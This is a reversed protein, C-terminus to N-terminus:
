ELFWRRSSGLRYICTRGVPLRVNNAPTAREMTSEESRPDFEDLVVLVVLLISTYSDIMERALKKRSLVSVYLTPLARTDCVNDLNTQRSNHRLHRHLVILVFIPAIMMLRGNLQQKNNEVVRSLALSL